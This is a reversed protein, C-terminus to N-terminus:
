CLGCALSWWSRRNEGGGPAVQGARGGFGLLLHIGRRHVRGHQAAFAQLFPHAPYVGVVAGQFHRVIGGEIRQQVGLVELFQYRGALEVLDVEDALDAVVGHVGAHADFGVFRQIRDLQEVVERAPHQPEVVIGAEFHRREIARQHRLRGGGVFAFVFEALEFGGVQLRLFRQLAQLGFQLFDFGGLGAVLGVRRRRLVGVLGKGAFVVDVRQQALGAPFRIGGIDYFIRYFTHGFVLAVVAQALDVVHEPAVVPQREGHHFGFAGQAVGAHARVLGFEVGIAQVEREPLARDDEVGITEVAPDPVIRM